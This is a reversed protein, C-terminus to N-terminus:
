ESVFKIIRKMQEKASKNKKIWDIQEINNVTDMNIAKKLAKALGDISQEAFIIQSEYEKPICELKTAVVKRGTYLYELLKCPFAYKSCGIGTRTPCVLIDASIQLKIADKKDLSGIYHIRTDKAEENQIDNRCTGNGAIVLQYERSKISKFAEVLDMIGLNEELAGTYVIIKQNCQVQMNKIKDFSNTDLIGEMVCIQNQKINPILEEMYKSLLIYYDVASFCRLIKNKNIWSDIRHYIKSFSFFDETNLTMYEPFDTIVLVIKSLPYNKKIYSIIDANHPLLSYVIFLMKERTGCKRKMSRILNNYRSKKNFFPINFFETDVLEIDRENGYYTEKGLVKIGDYYRPFTGVYQSNLITIDRIGNELLGNIMNKQFIDASHPLFNTLKKEIKDKYKEDLIGGIFVIRDYKGNSIKQLITM